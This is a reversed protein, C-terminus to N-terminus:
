EAITDARDDSAPPLARWAALLKWRAAAIELPRNDHIGYRRRHAAAFASAFDEDAPWAITLYADVGRYRLDLSRTATIREIPVGEACVKDVAACELADLLQRVIELSEGDLLREIGCSRYRTVDALGIGLASLVGAEPHNLVRRIGLERAVACAHQPAAGGFAVLVYDAPDAGKAITVQRIAAAMNANAIRVLGAALEELSMHAGSPSAVETALQTLGRETAARDLPFPFRGEVIRGLYL